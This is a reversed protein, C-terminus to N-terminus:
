PPHPVYPLQPLDVPHPLCPVHPIWPLPAWTWAPAVHHPKPDRPSDPLHSNLDTPSRPVSVLCTSCLAPLLLLDRQNWAPLKGGWEWGLARGRGWSPVILVGCKETVGVAVGEPGGMAPRHAPAWSLKVQTGTTRLLASSVHGQAPQLRAPHAPIHKHLPLPQSSHPQPPTPGAPVCLPCPQPPVGCCHCGSPHPHVLHSPKKM